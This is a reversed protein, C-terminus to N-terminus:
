YDDRVFLVARLLDYEASIRDNEAQFRHGYVNYLSRRDFSEIKHIKIRKM